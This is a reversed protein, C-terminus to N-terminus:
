PRVDTAYWVGTVSVRVTSMFTNHEHKSGIPSDQLCSWNDNYMGAQFCNDM